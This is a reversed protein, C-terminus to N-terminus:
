ALRTKPIGGDGIKRKALALEIQADLFKPFPMGHAAAAKPALSAETLGPITNIELFYFEGLPTLIFDSRSLGDCGIVAHAKRALTQLKATQTKTLRAPCIEQTKASFYKADYDFFEGASVIEVPPLAVLETEGANGMVACTVERGKIYEEVLVIRDEKFAKQIAGLLDEKQRVISIGISSGSENPKVVCPFGVLRAVKQELAAIEKKAPLARLVMLKPTKVGHMGVIELTRMKNMGLASALVGSGTYPMGITELLAQIKGDEGFRGHMGIFAVDFMQLKPNSAVPVLAASAANSDGLLAPAGGRLLWRGDKAIEALTLQYKNKPLAKAIQMGTKLSVERENSPGGCLVLVNIKRERMHEM